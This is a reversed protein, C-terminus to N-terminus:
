ARGHEIGSLFVDVTLMEQRLAQAAANIEAARAQRAARENDTAPGTNDLEAVGVATTLALARDRLICLQREISRPEGGDFAKIWIDNNKM